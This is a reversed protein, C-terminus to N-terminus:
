DRDKLWKNVTTKSVGLAAAIERQTANPHEDAYARILDKKPHEKNPAGAPRGGGDYWNTGKRKQRIDRIARIEELHEKQPTSDRKQNKDIHLGSFYEISTIPLTAYEKTRFAHLAQEIDSKKFHNSEDNTKGEFIEYLSYADERLKEEPIDCKIAYVALMMICHYRHGPRAEERIRRLWWEYVHPNIHWKYESIDKPPENHLIRREYWEPYLEKARELTLRETPHFLERAKLINTKWTGTLATTPPEFYLLEDVTWKEGTKWAMVDFDQSIVRETMPDCDLKSRSGIIRYPQVIGSYQKEEGQSTFMNWALDILAHKLIRYADQQEPWVNVPEQLVYYLHLGTGSNVIYTPRPVHGGQIQYELDKLQPLDVYDLDVVLAHLYRLHKLDKKAWILASGKGKGAIFSCPVVFAVQKQLQLLRALDDTVYHNRRYTSAENSAQKRIHIANAIAVYKGDHPANPNAKYADQLFGEPFIGRYFDYCSIPSGYSNILYSNKVEYSVIQEERTRMDKM